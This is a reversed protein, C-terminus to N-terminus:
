LNILKPLYLRLLNLRSHAVKALCFLAKTFINVDFDLDRDMRDLELQSLWFRNIPLFLQKNGKGDPKRFSLSLISHKAIEKYWNFVQQIVEDHRLTRSHVPRTAELITCVMYGEVIDVCAFVRTSGPLPLNPYPEELHPKLGCWLFTEEKLRHGGWPSFEKDTVDNPLGNM